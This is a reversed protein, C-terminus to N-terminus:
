VLGEGFINNANSNPISHMSILTEIATTNCMFYGMVKTM